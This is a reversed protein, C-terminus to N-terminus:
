LGHRNNLFTITANAAKFQGITVYRLSFYLGINSIMLKTGCALLYTENSIYEMGCGILKQKSTNYNLDNNFSHHLPKEKLIVIKPLVARLRLTSM